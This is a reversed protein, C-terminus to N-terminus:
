TNSARFGSHCGTWHGGIELLFANHVWTVSPETGSALVRRVLDDFSTPEDVANYTGTVRRASAELIWAALDRVDVIQVHRSPPGPALM